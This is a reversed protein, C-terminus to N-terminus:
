RKRKKEEHQEKVIMIGNSTKTLVYSNIGDSITSGDVIIRGNFGNKILEERMRQTAKIASTLSDISPVLALVSYVTWPTLEDVNIFPADAVRSKLDKQERKVLGYYRAKNAM